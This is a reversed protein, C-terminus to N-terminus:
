VTTKYYDVNKDHEKSGMFHDIAYYEYPIERNILEVCWMATLWGMYVGIEAIKITTSKTVNLESLITFLLTGQDHM